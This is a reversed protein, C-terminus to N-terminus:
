EVMGLLGQNRAGELQAATVAGLKMGQPIGGSGLLGTMRGGGYALGGMVKPSQAPLALLAYPNQLLAAAGLTAGGGLRGALSRPEWSNLAQGALAPLLNVGGESQLTDALKLRNGYNTQVNNRMLSQLKRMATDQSARTGLSLAREIESITESAKTYAKMTDAYVPAQRVIEDKTASYIKGAALRATKEEFGIGELIGNLSRKLADMGEPTHFRAPDLGKWEAVKEAMARVSDAAKANTVQGRFSSIAAADKIAKDIGDFSLVTQDSKVGAMNARYEASKQQGMRALGLKADDLVDTMAAKGTFNPWFTKEGKFGAKAAQGFAEAGTGTLFGAAHKAAGGVLPAAAKVVPAALSLPNIINSAEAMDAGARAAFRGPMSTPSLGGAAKMVGGGLGLVSSLDAAAGVPDTVMTRKINEAGGYRDKMMGGFQDALGSARQGARQSEPTDVSDVARRVGAPMLNRLGGAALDFANSATDIPHTAASILGGAFRKASPIINGPLDAWSAGQKAPRAQEQELRLRFEFEENESM